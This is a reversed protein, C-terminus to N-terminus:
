TSKARYRRSGDSRHGFEEEFRYEKKLGPCYKSRASSACPCIELKVPRYQHAMDKAAVGKPLNMRAKLPIIQRRLKKRERVKV